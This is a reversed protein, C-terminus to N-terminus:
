SDEAACCSSELLCTHGMWGNYIDSSIRCLIATFIFFSYQLSGTQKFYLMCGEVPLKHIVPAM